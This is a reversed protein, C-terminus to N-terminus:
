WRCMSGSAASTRAPQWRRSMPASPQSRMPLPASGPSAVIPEDCALGGRGVFCRDDWRRSFVVAGAVEACVQDINTAGTTRLRGSRLGSGASGFGSSAVVEALEDLGTGVRVGSEAPRTARSCPAKANRARGARALRRRRQANRQGELADAGDPDDRLASMSVGRRRVRRRDDPDHPLKHLHALDNMASQDNRFTM